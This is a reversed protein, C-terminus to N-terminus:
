ADELIARNIASQLNTNLLEKEREMDEEVAKEMKKIKKKMVKLVEDKDPTMTKILDEMMSSIWYHTENDGVDIRPIQVRLRVDYWCNKTRRDEWMHYEFGENKLENMFAELLQMGKAHRNADTVLYSLEKKLKDLANSTNELKRKM